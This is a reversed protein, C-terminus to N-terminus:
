HLEVLQEDNEIKYTAIKRELIPLTNNYLFYRELSYYGKVLELSTLRGYLGPEKKSITHATKKLFPLGGKNKRARNIQRRVQNFGGTGSLKYPIKMRQGLTDEGVVYYLGYNQSRKKAFMPYYSLPFSDKPKKVWNQAIPSLTVLLLTISFILAQTQSFSM